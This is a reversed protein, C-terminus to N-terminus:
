SSVGYTLLLIMGKIYIYGGLIVLIIFIGIVKIIKLGISSRKKDMAVKDFVLSNAYYDHFTQKKDTFFMMLIPLFFTYSIFSLLSRLSADKFSLTENDQNRVYIGIIKKGITANWSSSLMFTNYIWWLLLSLIINVLGEGALQMIAILPLCLVFVDILYAVSRVWFGAYLTNTNTKM